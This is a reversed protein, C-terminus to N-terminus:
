KKIEKIQDVTEKMQSSLTSLMGKLQPDLGDMRKDLNQFSELMDLGARQMKEDGIQGGIKSSLKKAIEFIDGVDKIEGFGGSKIEKAVGDILTDFVEKTEKKDKINLLDHVSKKTEDLKEAPINKLEENIKKFDVDGEIPLGFNKLLEATMEAPTKSKVKDVGEIMSNVSLDNVGEVGVYPTFLIQENGITINLKTVKDQLIPIADWIKGEKKLKNTITIMRVSSIYMVFFLGWLKKLEDTNLENIILGINIGPLITVIKGEANKEKFISPDEPSQTIKNLHKNVNKYIKKILKTMDFSSDKIGELLEECYLQLRRHERNQINLSLSKSNILNVLECTSIIFYRNNVLIELKEIDTM